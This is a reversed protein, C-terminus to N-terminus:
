PVPPILGGIGIWILALVVLTFALALLPVLLAAQGAQTFDQTFDLWVEIMYCM